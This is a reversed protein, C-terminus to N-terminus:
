FSFLLSFKNHHDLRGYDVNAYDLNLVTNMVNLRVGFGFTMGGERDELFLQRYGTRLAFVDWIMVETGANIYEKNDNPHVADVALIWDYQELNLFDKAINASLGVRFLVPMPYDDTDLHANINENNGAYQESIDHQILMDRGQMNMDTGFNTISMGIKLNKFFTRYLLGVDFAFGVADAHWISEHVFKANGGISFRDTLARAFGINAAYSHASVMEGNGEPSMVTTREIDPMGMYSFSFGFTGLNQVPLAAGFYEFYVDALYDFHNLVIQKSEIRDLGGPNWYLATVDTALTTYAEGMALARAGVGIKLFSAATTGVGSITQAKLSPVATLSLILMVGLGTRLKNKLASYNM